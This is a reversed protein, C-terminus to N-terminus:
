NTITQIYMLIRIVNKNNEFYIFICSINIYLIYINYMCELTFYTYIKEVETFVDRIPWRGDYCKLLLDRQRRSFYMISGKSRESERERQWQRPRQESNEVGELCQDKNDDDHKKKKM